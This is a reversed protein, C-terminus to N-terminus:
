DPMLRYGIGRVTQIHLPMKPDPEIKRRLRTVQVDISRETSGPSRSALEERSVPEGARSALMTLLQLEGDTLKIRRDGETLEGRKADFVMGSMEIEEPAPEVHTRRLIAGVRLSLEEPEFPKALYDDAGAKLGEIRDATEGRATLLLVPTRLGDSRASQLLELGSEGPMMVDLVVLDFDLTGLLKRATVANAAVTVRYDLKELYQKLLKRIRDDDDVVLVHPAESM